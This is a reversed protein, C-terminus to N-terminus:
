HEVLGNKHFKMAGMRSLEPMYPAIAMAVARGDINITTKSNGFSPNVNINPTVTVREAGREGALFMTPRKVIGSFGHQAAIIDAGEATRKDRPAFIFDVGEQGYKKKVFDEYAEDYEKRMDATLKHIKSDLFSLLGMFGTFAGAIMGIAGLWATSAATAGSAMGEGAAAGATQGAKGVKGFFGKFQGLVSEAVMEGIMRFFAAKINDFIGRCFEVLTSGGEMWTQITNGWGTAIDNYLGDFYNKTEKTATEAAGSIGPLDEDAMKGWIDSLDRHAPLDTNIITEGIEELALRFARAKPLITDIVTIEERLAKTEGDIAKAKGKVEEKTDTVIGLFDKAKDFWGVITDKNDLMAADLASIEDTYEKWAKPGKRAIEDMEELPIILTQLSDHFDKVKAKGEVAAAEIEDRMAKHFAKGAKAISPLSDALDIVAKIATYLGEFIKIAITISEGLTDVWEKFKASKLFEVVGTKLKDILERIAENETVAKGVAEKVEDWMNKLQTLSGSFTDTEGTARQYWKGMEEVVYAHKEEETKLDKLAPLYRGMMDYNGAMAKAVNTAASQLDVKFVTAMGIASKTAAQLGKEDLDSLQAILASASLVADDTYTTEDQIANAFDRFKPMLDDVNRGTIAFADALNKEALEQTAAAAISDRMFGTLAGLSKKVADAVLAGAAIQKWMGAFSPKAKKEATDAAEKVAGDLQKISIIAGKTDATVIYRVDAM